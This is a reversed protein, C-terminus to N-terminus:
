RQAGRNRRKMEGLFCMFRLKRKVPIKRNVGAKLAVAEQIAGDEGAKSDDASRVMAESRSWSM